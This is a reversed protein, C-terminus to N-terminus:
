RGPLVWDYLLSGSPKARNRVIKIEMGEKLTIDVKLGHYPILIYPKYCTARSEHGHDSDMYPIQAILIKHREVTGDPFTIDATCNPPVDKGDLQWKTYGWDGKRVLKSV